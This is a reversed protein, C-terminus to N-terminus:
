HLHYVVGTVLTILVVAYGLRVRLGFRAMRPVIRYAEAWTDLDNRQARRLLETILRDGDTLLAPVRWSRGGGDIVLTAPLWHLSGALPAAYDLRSLQALEIRVSSAGLAVIVADRTLAFTYRVEGGMRVIAVALAAGALMIFQRVFPLLADASPDIRLAGLTVATLVAAALARPLWRAAAGCRFM